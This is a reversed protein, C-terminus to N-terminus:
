DTASKEFLDLLRRVARTVPLNGQIVAQEIAPLAERVTQDQYFRRQLHERIMDHMWERTQDLRRQHFFGSAATERRFTRVVEWIEAIGTKELASCLLAPTQWGPTAPALYHLAREYEARAAEAATRNAGDAKNVAVADALEMVGKKIGQLEDGAGAIKLLLFFDVMSRVTIESQGVGVTEVLVVDYGAAECVLITERTKRAVGGLTGGSPSPRIFCREDRALTPMRVKDGLVSGRTISSTPDVALVALRYGQRILDIGLAEIFTSKGAGPVGTIGVRISQGTRPLLHRLVDQALAEHRQSNSEVLTITRGLVTRDGALVGTVYDEVVLERRRNVPRDGPERSSEAAIGDHGGGVGRVVSSAYEAGGGEPVWEPKRKERTM